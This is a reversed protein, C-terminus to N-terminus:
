FFEKAFWSAFLTVSNVAHRDSSEGPNVEVIFEPTADITYYRSGLTKLRRAGEKVVDPINDERHYINGNLVWYREELDIIDKKIFQRIAFLGSYGFENYLRKMEHITTNPWVSEGEEIHELAYFESKIFANNWGRQKILNPVQDDLKDVFFTEISLDSIYPYYHSLLKLNRNEDFGQIYRLDIPYDEKNNISFGRYILTKAINLPKTGILFGAKEMAKAEELFYSHIENENELSAIYIIQTM